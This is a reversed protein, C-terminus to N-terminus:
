LDYRWPLYLHEKIQLKKKRNTFYHSVVNDDVNTVPLTNDNASLSLIFIFPVLWLCIIFFSLVESLTAYRQRFYRFALVHNGILLIVSSIFSVSTLDFYPFDTLLSYYVIHSLIGVSILMLPVNDFLYLGIHCIIVVYISWKICKKTLAVHEEIFDSLFYVGSGIFVSILILQTIAALAVIILM